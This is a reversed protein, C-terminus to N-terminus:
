PLCVAKMKDEGHVKDHNGEEAAKRCWYFAQRPELSALFCSLVLSVQDAFPEGASHWLWDALFFVVLAKVLKGLRGISTGLSCFSSCPHQLDPAIGLGERYAIALNYRSPLLFELSGQGSLAEKSPHSGKARRIQDLACTPSGEPTPQSSHFGGPERM